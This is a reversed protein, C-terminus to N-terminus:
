IFFLFFVQAAERMVELRDDVDTVAPNGGPQGSFQILCKFMVFEDLDLHPDTIAFRAIGCDFIQDFFGM